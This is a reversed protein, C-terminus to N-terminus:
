KKQSQRELKYDFHRSIERVFSGKHFRWTPRDDLVRIFIDGTFSPGVGEFFLALVIDWTQFLLRNFAELTKANEFGSFEGRAARALREDLQRKSLHTYGSLAGFSSHVASKLKHADAIMRVQLQDVPSVSSRPVKSADGLFALRDVLPTHGPLQQDVFVHKVAAEILYRMERRGVNYVGQIALSHVSIASELFDDVFKHILWENAHSYRTFAVSALRLAEVFDRTTRDLVTLQAKYQEGSAHVEWEGIKRELDAAQKRIVDSISDGPFDPDTASELNVEVWGKAAKTRHQRASRWPRSDIRIRTSPPVGSWRPRRVNFAVPPPRSVCRKRRERCADHTWLATFAASMATIMFACVRIARRAAGAPWPRTRPDAAPRKAADARQEDYRM